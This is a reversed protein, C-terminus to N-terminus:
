GLRDYPKRKTQYWYVVGGGIGLVVVAAVGFLLLRFTEASQAAVEAENSAREALTVALDFSASEYAAIADQLTGRATEVDGGRNTADEVALAAEDIAQRAERSEATFYPITWTDIRNRTGGERVQALEMVVFSQRPDYSYEEVTPVTGTVKVEVEDVDDELAIGGLSFAQGDVSNMSLQNGGADHFTVTWTVNELDTVGDLTWSEFNPDRYLDTLVVTSSVQTGVRAEEPVDEASISVAGVVGSGALLAVVLITVAVLRYRNCSGTSRYKMM